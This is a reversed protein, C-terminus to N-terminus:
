NHAVHKVDQPEIYPLTFSVESDRADSMVVTKTFTGATKHWALVTYTGPPVDKLTFTGTPDVRAAWRNPAVVITAAMNPHLHCYVAVIGPTAFSVVRTQGKPYNGLDFSKAKSLSFVNHFIPDFNPFSVSAGAPIVVLDPSFRRDRQEISASPSAASSGLSSALSSALGAAAINSAAGEPGKEIYVAVHSREFALPDEDGDAKLEVAVGRQYLGAAATVNHHSLKHDIVITGHIDAGAALAGGLFACLGFRSLMKHSKDAPFAAPKVKLHKM